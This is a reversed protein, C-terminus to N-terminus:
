GELKETVPLMECLAVGGIDVDLSCGDCDKGDGGPVCACESCERYDQKMEETINVVLKVNDSYKLEM